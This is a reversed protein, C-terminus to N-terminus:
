EYGFYAPFTYTLGGFIQATNKVKLKTVCQDARIHELGRESALNEEIRDLTRMTIDETDGLFLFARLYEEYSIGGPVDKGETQGAGSGFTLLASLSLQWNDSSKVLATRRGSLLTRIDVVSEGAAWALLILQKVVESAEPILLITTVTVALATVEAQKAQDGLLYTYNLAMRILFLKMLVAELNAKDSDKGAIIYETEYALSREKQAPNQDAASSGSGPATQAANAFNMLVYEDFLLREDVGGIGQRMPFTGRGKRLSRRSSQTSPDIALGSLEMDKPMVVSLVGSKEIQELCTFPDGDQMVEPGTDTNERAAGGTDSLDTDTMDQDPPSEGPLAAAAASERLRDAKELVDKQEEEMAEGQINEEEWKATLGTLDRVLSVGYKTEMYELAQERFAQGSNDTLYQIGTIEQEMGATGFYRMRDILNEEAYEKSGYSGDIAFINYEEFMQGQYEGFISFIARDVSLRSINGSTQIVTIELIGLVFSVLLVFVMSLFATIEAKRGDTKM